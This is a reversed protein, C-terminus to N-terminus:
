DRAETYTKMFEALWDEGREARLREAHRVTRARGSLVAVHEPMASLDFDVVVSEANEGRRKILFRRSGPQMDERIARLEGESLFLQNRYVEEDATPTPFLFLSHCQGILTAGFKDGLVHEPQQTVLLVIWNNKRSTLLFDEALEAFQPHMFYKRFEDLAAVGRRGDMFLRVFYLLYAGAPNVIEPDDLIETLDFGMCTVGGGGKISSRFSLLIRDEAGDFAWGLPGGNCWRELRAGAGIPNWGLFQRLGLLSRMAHPLRMVATVGDAIRAEDEPDIPGHGDLQILAKLWRSLFACDAPTNSLGKLPSLGSDQGARIVLYRGGVAHALIEGGRDKDFFFLIGNNDVMYQDFMALLFMLATSKGSGIRGFIATMGVDDVHPVYDYATAGTTKFRAMAAGWRGASAGTPFASFDAMHAFNVSSIAGPRVQWELNGPLQAFFAAEMGGRCSEQIVVAGSDALRTRALAALPPLASLDDAYVALSLSHNGMVFEGSMLKDLAGGPRQIDEIQSIARDGANAMHGAKTSLRRETDPKALFTFSQSFVLECPLSLLTDFLGPSTQMPYERLSFLAGYRARGPHQIEFTRSLRRGFRHLRPGFVVRDTCVANGLDGGAVPVSVGDCYLIQRLAEGIESFVVGRRERLGLRRLNYGELSRPVALWTNDAAAKLDAQTDLQASTLYSTVRRWRESRVVTGAVTRPALLISLLWRNEFLQGRLIRDRYVHDLDASFRNRFVPSPPLAGARSRVLHVCVTLNEAAINKWLSAITRAAANRETAASLEHPKGHLEAMVLVSGDTLVVKDPAIHGVYPLETSRELLAFDFPV